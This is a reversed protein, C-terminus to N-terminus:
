ISNLVNRVAHEFKVIDSAIHVNGHDELLRVWNYENSGPPLIILKTRKALGSEKFKQMVNESAETLGDSIIIYLNEPKKLNVIEELVPDIDTGSDASITLLTEIVKKRDVHEVETDFFYIDANTRKYLALALGAAVSIKTVNDGYYDGMSGSKDVFVVPKVASTKQYVSLQKQVIKLTLLIRGVDGLNALSLESPLIDSLQRESWMKEVGSVGGYLSVNQKHFVSTPVATLFKTYFLRAQKLLMVHYRFRDPDRLFRNVSLAEKNFNSGNGLVLASETATERLEKFDLVHQEAHILASQLAKTIKAQESMSIQEGNEMMKQYKEINLEGLLRRLFQVAAVVSLETSSQTIKNVDYFREKKVANEVIMRWLPSEKNEKKLSKLVTDYNKYYMLFADHTQYFKPLRYFFTNKGPHDYLSLITKHVSQILPFYYEVPLDEYITNKFASKVLSSKTFSERM